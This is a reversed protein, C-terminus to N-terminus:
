FLHIHYQDMISIALPSKKELFVETFARNPEWKELVDM